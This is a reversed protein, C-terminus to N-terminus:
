AERARCDAAVIRKRCPDGAEHVVVSGGGFM